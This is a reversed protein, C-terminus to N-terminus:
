LLIIGGHFNPEGCAAWALLSIIRTSALSPNVKNQFVRGRM